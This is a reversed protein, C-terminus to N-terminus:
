LSRVRSGIADVLQANGEKIVQLMREGFKDIIKDMEANDRAAMAKQEPTVERLVPAGFAAAGLGGAAAEMEGTRLMPAMAGITMARMDGSLGSRNIENLVSGSGEAAMADGEKLAGMLGGPASMMRRMVLAQGIGQFPALLTQRASAIPSMMAGAVAPAREGLGSLGSTGAMRAMFTEQAGVNTQLGQAAMAQTNSAITGLYKDIQAERLGAAMALGIARGADGGVGGAGPGMQAQYGGMAGVSAGSRLLTLLKGEGGFDSLAGSYGASKGFGMVGALSEERNLGQEVGLKGLSRIGGPGSLSGGFMRAQALQRQMGTAKGLQTDRWELAEAERGKSSGFMSSGLSIAGGALMAYPNGSMMLATGLAQGGGSVAAGTMRAERGVTMATSANTYAEYANAAGQIGHIGIMTARTFQHQRAEAQRQQQRQQAPTLGGGGGGPGGGGPGSPAAPSGGGGGGPGSPVAGPLAPVGGGGGSGGPLGAGGGRGGLVMSEATRNLRDLLAQMKTVASEARRTNLGLEIITQHTQTTM